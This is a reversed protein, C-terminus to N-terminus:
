DVYVITCVALYYKMTHIYGSTSGMCIKTTEKELVLNRLADKYKDKPPPPHVIKKQYFQQILPTLM